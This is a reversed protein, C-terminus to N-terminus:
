KPRLWFTFYSYVACHFQMSSKVQPNKDNSNYNKSHSKNAYLLAVEAPAEPAQTAHGAPVPMALVAPAQIRQAERGMMLEVAPVTTNLDEPVMTNAVAPDPTDRVEPVPTARGEPAQTRPDARVMTHVAERGKIALDVPVTM